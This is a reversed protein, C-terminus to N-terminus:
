IIRRIKQKEEKTKIEQNSIEELNSVQMFKSDFGINRIKKFEPDSFDTTSPKACVVQFKKYVEDTVEYMENLKLEDESYDFLYKNELEKRDPVTNLLKSFDCVVAFQNDTVKTISFARNLKPELERRNQHLKNYHKEDKENLFGGSRSYEILQLPTTVFNQIAERLKSPILKQYEDWNLRSDNVTNLWVHYENIVENVM